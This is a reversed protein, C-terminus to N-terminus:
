YSSCSSSVDLKEARVLLLNTSKIGKNGGGFGKVCWRDAKNDFAVLRGIMGNLEAKAMLGHIRVLDGDRLPRSGQAAAAICRSCVMARCDQCVGIEKTHEDCRSCPIDQPSSFEVFAGDCWPELHLGGGDDSDEDTLSTSRPGCSSFTKTRAARDWSPTDAVHAPSEPVVAQLTDLVVPEVTDLHPLIKGDAVVAPADVYHVHIDLVDPEVTDLHPFIKEDSVVAPADVSHVHLGPPLAITRNVSSVTDVSEFPHVHLGSPPAVTKGVSTATDDPAAVDLHSFTSSPTHLGPLPVVIKAVPALPLVARPLPKRAGAPWYRRTPRGGAPWWRRLPWEYLRM